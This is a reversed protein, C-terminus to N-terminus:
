GQSHGRLLPSAEDQLQVKGPTCASLEGRCRGLVTCWRLSVETRGLTVKNGVDWSHSVRWWGSSTACGELKSGWGPFATRQDGQQPIPHPPAPADKLATSHNPAAATTQPQPLSPSVEHVAPPELLQLGRAAPHFRRSTPIPVAGNPHADGLAALKSGRAMLLATFTLHSILATKPPLLHKERSVEQQPRNTIGPPSTGQLSFHHWMVCSSLSSLRRKLSFMVKPCSPHAPHAPVGCAVSPIDGRSPFHASYGWRKERLNVEARESAFGLM